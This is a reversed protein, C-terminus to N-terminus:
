ITITLVKNGQVNQDDENSFIRSQYQVPVPKIVIHDRHSDKASILQHHEVRPSSVDRSLTCFKVSDEELLIVLILLFFRGMSNRGQPSLNGSSIRDLINIGTKCDEENNTYKGIIEECKTKNDEDGHMTPVSHFIEIFSKKDQNPLELLSKNRGSNKPKLKDGSKREIDMSSVNDKSSKVKSDLHKLSEIKHRTTDDNEELSAECEAVTQIVRSDHEVSLNAELEKIVLKFTHDATDEHKEDVNEQVEQIPQSVLSVIDLLFNIRRKTIFFTM